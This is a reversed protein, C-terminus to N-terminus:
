IQQDQTPNSEVHVKEDWKYHIRGLLWVISLQGVCTGSCQDLELFTLLHFYNSKVICNM